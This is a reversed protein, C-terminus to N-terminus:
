CNTCECSGSGSSQICPNGPYDQCNMSAGNGNDDNTVFGVLGFVLGILIIPLFNLVISWFGPGTAPKERVIDVNKSVLQDILKGDMGYRIARWFNEEILRGPPPPPLDDLTAAPRSPVSLVSVPSSAQITNLM